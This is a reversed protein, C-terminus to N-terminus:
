KRLVVAGAGEGIMWGDNNKNFSFSITQKNTNASHQKQRLLVNELGGSFDVAGVVVADVEGFSLMNQAIELAKFM